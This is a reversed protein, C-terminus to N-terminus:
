YELLDLSKLLFNFDINILKAMEIVEVPNSACPGPFPRHIPILEDVVTVPFIKVIVAIRFCLTGPFSRLREIGLMFGHNTNCISRHWLQSWDSLSPMCSAWSHHKLPEDRCYPRQAAVSPASGDTKSYTDIQARQLANGSKEWSGFCATQRRCWTNSICRSSLCQAASIFM